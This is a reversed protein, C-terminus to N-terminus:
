LGTIVMASEPEDAGKDIYLFQHKRVNGLTQRVLKYDITGGIEGLRKNGEANLRGLYLHQAQSYAETPIFSPSQTMAVLTVSSRGRTWIDRLPGYLNLGSSDALFKMEDAIIIWDRQKYAKALADYVVRQQAALSQGALGSKVHLRFWKPQSAMEVQLRSPFRHVTHQFFPRGKRPVLTNDHDKVDLYIVRFDSWDPLLGRTVMYTKGGRGTPAIVSIHQGPEWVQNLYSLHNEWSVRPARRLGARPSLLQLPNATTKTPELAM